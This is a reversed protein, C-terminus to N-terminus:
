TDIENEKKNQEGFNCDIFNNKKLYKYFIFFIKKIGLIDKEDQINNYFQNINGRVGKVDNYNNEENTFKMKFSSEGKNTNKTFQSSCRIYADSACDSHNTKMKKNAFYSNRNESNNEKETSKYKEDFLFNHSFISSGLKNTFSSNKSTAGLPDVYENINNAGSNKMDYSFNSGMKSENHSASYKDWKKDFSCSSTDYDSEKKSYIREYENNNKYKEYQRKWKDTNFYSSSYRTYEYESEENYSNFLNNIGDNQEDYYYYHNVNKYSKQYHLLINQIVYIPIFDLINYVYSYLKRINYFFQSSLDNRRLLMNYRQIKNSDKFKLFNINDNKSKNKSNKDNRNSTHDDFRSFLLKSITNKKKYRMKEAGSSSEGNNNYYLFNENNYYNDENENNKNIKNEEVVEEKNEDMKDLHESINVNKLDHPDIFLNATSIVHDKEDDNYNGNKNGSHEITGNTYSTQLGTKKELELGDRKNQEKQMAKNFFNVFFNNAYKNQINKKKKKKKKLDKILENVDLIENLVNLSSTTYNEDINENEDKQKIKESSNNNEEENENEEEEYARITKSSDFSEDSFNNYNDFKDYIKDNINLNTYKMLILTFVIKLIKMFNKMKKIDDRKHLTPSETISNSREGNPYYMSKSNDTNVHKLKNELYSQDKPTQEQVNDSRNNIIYNFDRKMVNKNKKLSKQNNQKSNKESFKEKYLVHFSGWKSSSKKNYLYPYYNNFFEDYLCCDDCDNEENNYVTKNKNLCVDKECTYSYCEKKKINACIIKNKLIANKIEEIENSNMNDGDSYGSVSSSQNTYVKGFVEKNKLNGHEDIKDNSGDLSGDNNFTNYNGIKEDGNKSFESGDNSVFNKQSNTNMYNPISFNDNEKPLYESQTFHSSLKVRDHLHADKNIPYSENQINIYIKEFINNFYRRVQEPSFKSFIFQVYSKSIEKIFVENMVQFSIIILSISIFHQIAAPTHLLLTEILNNCSVYNINKYFINILIENYLIWYIKNMETATNINRWYKINLVDSKITNKKKSDVRNKGRKKKM